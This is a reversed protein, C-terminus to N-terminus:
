ACCRIPAAAAASAAAPAVPALSTYGSKHQPDKAAIPGIPPVADIPARQAAVCRRGAHGDGDGGDDEYPGARDDGDGSETVWGVWEDWPLPRGGWVSLM